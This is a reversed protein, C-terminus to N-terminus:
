AGALGQVSLREGTDFFAYVRRWVPDTRTASRGTAAHWLTREVEEVRAVFEGPSRPAAIDAYSARGRYRVDAPATHPVMAMAIRAHELAALERGPAAIMAPSGGPAGLAQMAEILAARYEAQSRPEAAHLGARAVLGRLEPLDIDAARLRARFGAEIGEVHPLTEDVLMTADPRSAHGHDLVGDLALRTRGFLAALADFEAFASSGTTSM